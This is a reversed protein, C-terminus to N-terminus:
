PHLEFYQRTTQWQDLICVNAHHLYSLSVLLNKSFALFRHHYIDRWLEGHLRLSPTQELRKGHWRFIAL